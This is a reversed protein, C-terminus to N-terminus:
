YDDVVIDSYSNPYNDRMIDPIISSDGIGSVGTITIKYYNNRVIAYEMPEMHQTNNQHHNIWYTYYTEYVGMNFKCQKIGYTKLQSDTYHELEDLELGGVLNIAQISGYFNYKYLYVADPWYEPRREALLTRSDNDYIYVLVPSVAAKFVIGPSYGNKQCESRATNELIYAYGHNGATPMSAFGETTFDGFWSEYYNKFRAADAASTTKQYFLPDVIYGNDSHQFLYYQTNLNVIKYNTINVDAYKERDYSLAFSHQSVGIQLKALVREMEITLSYTKGTWPVLDVSLLATSESTMVPGTAPINPEIGTKYTVSDVINLFDDEDEIDDPVSSYNAIAYINYLGVKVRKAPMIYTIDYHQDPEVLDQVLDEAVVKTALKGTETDFFFLELHSIVYENQFIDMDPGIAPVKMRAALVVTSDEPNDGTDTGAPIGKLLKQLQGEITAYDALPSDTFVACVKGNGDVIYTRPIGSTAFKYYLAKDGPTYVPMTLGERTWYTKVEDATQSRPVNLVPVAEGYKDYVQQLVPFEKQCDPCGTDFFSLMYVRGKLEASSLEAGNAATLTFSPVVDGVDVIGGRSDTNEDQSCGALVVAFLCM